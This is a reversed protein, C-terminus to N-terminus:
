HLCILSAPRRMLAASPLPAQSCCCGGLADDEAAIHLAAAALDIAAEGAEISRLFAHRAQYAHQLSYDVRRCPLALARNNARLRTRALPPPPRRPLRATLPVAASRRFTVVTHLSTWLYRRYRPDDEIARFEDLKRREQEPIARPPPVLKGHNRRCAPRGWPQLPAAQPQKQAPLTLSLRM